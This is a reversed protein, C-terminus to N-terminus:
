VSSKNNVLLRSSKKKSPLVLRVNYKTCLQIEVPGCIKNRMFMSINYAVNLNYVNLMTKIRLLRREPAVHNLM